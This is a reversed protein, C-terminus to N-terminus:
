VWIELVDEFEQAVIAVFLAKMLGLKEPESVYDNEEM